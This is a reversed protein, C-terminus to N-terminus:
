KFSFLKVMNVNPDRIPLVIPHAFVTGNKSLIEVQLVATEVTSPRGYMDELFVTFSSTLGAVSHALGSGNAFSKTGNCKGSLLL